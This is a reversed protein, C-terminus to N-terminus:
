RIAVSTRGRVAGGADEFQLAIRNNAPDFTTATSSRAFVAFTPTANSAITTTVSAAPPALCIGSVADTECLLVESLAPGSVVARATLAGASGLNITAAVFFGFDGNSPLTVVGDASPTGALVIVDPQPATSASFLLTNTGLLAVAPSGETCFFEFVIEQPAIESLATLSLIFSQPTDAFLDVPVNAPGSLLNTAPNTPQYSLSGDFASALEIRCASANSSTILTTFATVTAGVTTSRSSPLVASVLSYTANTRRAVFVDTAYNRDDPVLDDILSQFVVATGDASISAKNSINGFTGSGVFGNTLRETEGTLRDQTFVEVPVSRLLNLLNEVAQTEFSVLRGDYSLGPRQSIHESNAGTEIDSDQSVLQTVKTLLDHVYVHTRNGSPDAVTAGYALYRGNGSLTIDSAILIDPVLSGVRQTVGITQDFMYIPGSINPDSAASMNAAVSSFAVFRGDASIHANESRGNAVEGSPTRSVIQATGTDRDVLYVREQGNNTTCPTSASSSHFTIYRGDANIDPACFSMDPSALGPLNNSLLATSGTLQNYIFIDAAGNDSEGTALRASTSAYAIFTGDSSIVAANATAMPDGAEATLSVLQTLGNLSDAVFVAQASGGTSVPTDDAASNFVVFRGDVSSSHKGSTSSRADRTQAPTSQSEIRSLEATATAYIYVDPRKDGDLSLFTPSAGFIVTEGDASISPAVANLTFPFSLPVTSPIAITTGLNLDRLFVEAFRQDPISFASTALNKATSSFVVLQGDASVSASETDSSAAESADNVSAMLITGTQRDHHYVQIRGNTSTSLNSANSTFVVFRGDNSLQAHNSASNAEVADSSRSIRETINSTRDRVFIDDVSNGDTAILNTASSEFAVVQGDASISPARSAADAETGNSDISTRSVTGLERDLVFVDSSDNTDNAVLNASDSHFATFRGTDSIVPAGSNSNGQIGSNNSSLLSVAGTIRDFAFVDDANNDDNATLNDAASRFVVTLGDGSIAATDSFRNGALGTAGVSVLTNSGTTRDHLYVQSADNTSTNVFNTAASSFVVFRGDTSLSRGRTTVQMSENAVTSAGLGDSRKSVLEIDAAVAPASSTVWFLWITFLATSLLKSQISHSM